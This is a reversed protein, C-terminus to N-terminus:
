HSCTRSGPPLSPKQAAHYRSGTAAAFGAGVVTGVVLGTLGDGAGEVGEVGAGAVGRDVGETGGTTVVVVTGVVVDATGGTVLVVVVDVEVVEGVVVAGTASVGFTCTITFPFM